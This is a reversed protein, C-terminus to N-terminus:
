EYLNERAHDVSRTRSIYHQVSGSYTITRYLFKPSVRPLALLRAQNHITLSQHNENYLAD